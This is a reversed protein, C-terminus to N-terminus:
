NLGYIDRYKAHLGKIYDDFFPSLALTWVALPRDGRGGMCGPLSLAALSMAGASLVGLATRRSM